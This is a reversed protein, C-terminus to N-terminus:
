AGKEGGAVGPGVAWAVGLLIVAAVMWGQMALGANGSHFLEALAPYVAGVVLVLLYALYNRRAFWLCFTLACAVGVLAPLYELAFEGVTRVDESVMAGALLLALPAVMWRKPLWRVALAGVALMAARTFISRVM